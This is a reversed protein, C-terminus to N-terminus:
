TGTAVDTCFAVGEVTGRPAVFPLQTKPDIVMYQHYPVSREVAFYRRIEIPFASPCRQQADPVVAYFAVGEYKLGAGPTGADGSLGRLAACEQANATFFHSAGPGNESLRGFFQCVPALGPAANLTTFARWVQGTRTFIKGEDRSDLARTVDASGTLFRNRVFSEGNYRYEVIPVSNAVPAGPPVHALTVMASAVSPDAGRAKVIFRKIGPRTGPTIAFNARGSSDTLLATKPGDIGTDIAEDAIVQSALAVSAGVSTREPFSARVSVQINPTVFPTGVASVQLDGSIVEAVQAASDSCSQLRSFPALRIADSLREGNSLRQISVFDWNASAFKPYTRWAELSSPNLDPRVGFIDDTIPVVAFEFRLSKEGETMALDTPKYDYSDLVALNVSVVQVEDFCYQRAQTAGFLTLGGYTRYKDVSHAPLSCALVV